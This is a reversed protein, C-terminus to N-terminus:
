ETNNSPQARIDLFRLCKKITKRNGLLCKWKKVDEALTQLQFNPSVFHSYCSTLVRGPGGRETYQVRPKWGLQSYYQQKLQPEPRPPNRGNSLPNPSLPVHLSQLILAWVRTSCLASCRTYLDPNQHDSVTPQKQEWWVLTLSNLTLPCLALQISVSMVCSRQWFPPWIIFIWCIELSWQISECFPFLLLWYECM